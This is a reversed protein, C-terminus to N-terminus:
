RVRGPALRRGWWGRAVDLGLTVCAPRMVALTGAYLLLALSGGVGGPGPWLRGLVAALCAAALAKAADRGFPSGALPALTALSAALTIAELVVLALTAGLAGGRAVLVPTLLLSSVLGIVSVTVLRRPRDLALLVAGLAFNVFAVCAALGLVGLLPSAPAYAAGFLVRTLTGAAADLTLALGLGVVLLVEVVGRMLGRFAADDAGHRALEPYAAAVVAAPVVLLLDLVRVAAGFYGAAAEGAIVFVIPAVVRLKALDCVAAMAVPGLRRAFAWARSLDLRGPVRAFRRRVIVASAAMAAGSSVTFVAAVAVVGGPVALVLLGIGLLLAKEVLRLALDLGFRRRAAFV